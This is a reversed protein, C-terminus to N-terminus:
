RSTQKNGTHVLLLGCPLAALLTSFVILTIYYLITVTTKDTPNFALVAHGYDTGSNKIAIKATNSAQAEITLTDNGTGFQAVLQGNSNFLTVGQVHQTKGVFEHLATTIDSVRPPSSLTALAAHLVSASKSRQTWDAENIASRNEGLKGLLVLCVCLSILVLTAHLKYKSVPRVSIAVWCL